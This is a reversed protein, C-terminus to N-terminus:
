RGKDLAALDSEEAPRANPLCHEYLFEYVIDRALVAAVRYEGTHTLAYTFAVVQVVLHFIRANQFFGCEDEPLHIFHRARARTASEPKVIASANRSLVPVLSSPPGKVESLAPLSTSKKMSLTNRKTCAPESTDESRPRTGEATPYWGVRAASIPRRWSRMVEVVLPEMVETCAM